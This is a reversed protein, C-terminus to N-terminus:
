GPGAKKEPPLPLPTREEITEIRMTSKSGGPSGDKEPPNFTTTIRSMASPIARGLAKMLSGDKQRELIWEQLTLVFIWTGAGGMLISFVAWAVGDGAEHISGGVAAIMGGGLAGAIVRALCVRFGPLVPSLGILILAIVGGLLSVIGIRAAHTDIWAQTAPDIMLSAGMLFVFGAGVDAAPNQTTTVCRGRYCFEM